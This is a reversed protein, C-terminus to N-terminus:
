TDARHDHTVLEGLGEGVRGRTGSAVSVGSRETRETRALQLREVKRRCISDGTCNEPVETSFVAKTM